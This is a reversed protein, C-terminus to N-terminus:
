DTPGRRAAPRAALHQRDPGPRDRGGRRARLRLRPLRATRARARRQRDLVPLRHRPGAGAARDAPRPARAPSNIEVAVDHEACAEFVAQADFQSQRAPHRPQRHGAPRHLPRAREDVPQPDRAIMRKTMPAPTWRCSPTCAPSGSTSGALMEETQDLAGDDLIDVEIGKLLRFEGRRHPCIRRQRRRRRRAPPDAARRQPRARDHPPALPRHARPLRPRARDRDDGDGRDALRRRVLRLPLAPRRAAGRAARTRRRDLPGATSSRSGRGAAGADAGRSPTAIVRATSRRHRGARDAHRRRRAAAVEDAPLPLIAAAAKRYAQVKYTDERGRELLFAIRRLAAVPSGDYPDGAHDQCAASKGECVKKTWLRHVRWEQQDARRGADARADDEVARDRTRLAPAGRGIRM